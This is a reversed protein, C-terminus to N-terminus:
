QESPVAGAPADAADSGLPHVPACFPKVAYRGIVERYTRYYGAGNRAIEAAGLERSLAPLRYWAAGPRAHHTVHLNNFLFLVGALKGSEVFATRDDPSGVARHEVFSRTYTVSLGFWCYGVLYEWVPTGAVAFLLWAISACIVLHVLWVRRMRADGIARRLQDVVHTPVGMLPGILIRGLYTRNVQLLRRRLPGAAEWQEATVYYSEPDVGPVTLEIEHHELHEDRYVAYPLWFSLPWGALALNVPRWPTPHSHIVEHQLSMYWGGAIAFGVLSIPWPVSEHAIVLVTWIAWIVAAVLITPWEIWGVRHAPVAGNVVGGEVHGGVARHQNDHM